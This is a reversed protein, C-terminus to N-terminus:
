FVLLGAIGMVAVLLTILQQRQHEAAESTPATTRTSSPPATGTSNKGGGVDQPGTTGSVTSEIYLVCDDAAPYKMAELYDRMMQIQHNQGNIIERMIVHMVCEPTGSTVDSCDVLGTKLLTKAMNVANQHHPIMQHIFLAEVSNASTGTTMGAFQHCDMADTCTSYAQTLADASDANCVFAAPCQNNPLQFRDLDWTGCNQDFDSPVYYDYGLPPDDVSNVPSGNM